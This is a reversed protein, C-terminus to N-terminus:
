LKDRYINYTPTLDITNKESKWRYEACIIQFLIKEMLKSFKVLAVLTTVKRKDTPRETEVRNTERHIFWLFYVRVFNGCQWNDAIKRSSLLLFVSKFALFTYYLLSYFAIFHFSLKAPFLFFLFRFIFFFLLKCSTCCAPFVLTLMSTYCKIAATETETQSLCFTSVRM